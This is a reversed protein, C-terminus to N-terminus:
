PSRFCVTCYVITYFHITIRFILTSTITPLIDTKSDGYSLFNNLGVHNHRHWNAHVTLVHSHLAPSFVFRHIEVSNAFFVILLGTNWYLYVLIPNQCTKLILGKKVLFSGLLRNENKFYFATILINIFNPDFTARLTVKSCPKSLM